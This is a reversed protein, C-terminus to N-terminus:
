LETTQSTLGTFFSGFVCIVIQPVFTQWGPSTPVLVADSSSKLIMILLIIDSVPDFYTHKSM